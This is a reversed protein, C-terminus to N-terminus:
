SGDNQADENSSSDESSADLADRSEDASRSDADLSVNKDPQSIRPGGHDPRKNKRGMRGSTHKRANQIEEQTVLGNGDQDMKHFRKKLRETQAAMFEDLSVCDDGNSDMNSLLPSEPQAKRPKKDPNAQITWTMALPIIAALALTPIKM